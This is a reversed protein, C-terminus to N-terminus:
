HFALLAGIIDELELSEKGWTLITVLNEYIPATPLSNLLMLANDEDEFKVHVRKLDGIIQNFVIIHQRLDMGEEMKLGYVRQKLYLKNMLSKSMYWSKLKLWIAVLFEEDMVHYMVDDELCIWITAVV